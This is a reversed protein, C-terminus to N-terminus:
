HATQFRYLESELRTVEELRKMTNIAEPSLPRIMEKSLPGERTPRVEGRRNLVVSQGRKNALKMKGNFLAFLDGRGSTRVLFRTGRVSATATPLVVKFTGKRKLKNLFIGARGKKLRIRARSHLILEEMRIETQEGVRIVGQDRVTIELHSNRGTRVADGKKLFDGIKLLSAKNERILEAKRSVFTVLAVRESTPERCLPICLILLFAVGPPRRFIGDGSTDFRMVPDPM